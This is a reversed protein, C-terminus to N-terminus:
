YLADDMARLEGNAVSLRCPHDTNMLSRTQAKNILARLHHVRWRVAAAAYIAGPINRRSIVCWDDVVDVDGDLDGDLDGDVDCEDVFSLQARRKWM